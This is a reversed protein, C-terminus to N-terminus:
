KFIKRGVAVKQSKQMSIICFWYFMSARVRTVGRLPSHLLVERLPVRGSTSKCERKQPPRHFVTLFCQTKESTQNTSPSEFGKEFLIYSSVRNNKLYFINSSYQLVSKLYFIINRSPIWPTRDFFINTQLGMLQVSGVHMFVTKLYFIVSKQSPKPGEYAPCFLPCLFM